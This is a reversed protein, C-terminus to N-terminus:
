LLGPDPGYTIRLVPYVELPVQFESPILSKGRNKTVGSIAYFEIKWTDKPLRLLALRTKLFNTNGFFRINTDWPEDIVGDPDYVTEPDILEPLLVSELNQYAEPELGLAQIIGPGYYDAPNWSDRTDHIGSYKM